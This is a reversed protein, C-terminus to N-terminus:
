FTRALEKAEKLTDQLITEHDIEIVDQMPAGLFHFDEIGFFRSIAKLYDGGYNAGAIPGGATTLYLLRDARCLGVSQGGDAYGFTVGSVSVHEIYVRLKSPFSMEWYPAAIVIRDAAAFQRALALAPDDYRKEGLATERATLATLDLPQLDLNKLNLTEIEDQPHAARWASLFTDALLKTRSVEHVSICCDIYLLKM